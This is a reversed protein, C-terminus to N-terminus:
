WYVFSESIVAEEIGAFNEKEFTSGKCSEIKHEM